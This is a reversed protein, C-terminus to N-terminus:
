QHAIFLPLNITKIVLEATSHRFYGSLLTRGYAGMVVFVNKKGLLYSLLEYQSKGRLLLFHVQPCHMELLDMIERRHIGDNANEENVQLVTISKRSLEPFLAIFQKIAFVAAATGDYAFLIEDIGHFNFPAILVPCEAQALIKRVFVTPAGEYHKKFSTEAGVILLDAFRSEKLIAEEPMDGNEMVACQVGRSKCSEEFLQRYEQGNGPLVPMTGAAVPENGNDAALATHKQETAPQHRGNLFVATLRSHTLSAIYCAFDLGSSSIDNTNVALLIKKM